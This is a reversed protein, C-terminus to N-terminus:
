FTGKEMERIIGKEMAKRIAHFTPSMRNFANTTGRYKKSEWIKKNTSDYVTVSVRAEGMARRTRFEFILDSDEINRVKRLGPVREIEKEWLEDSPEVKSDESMRIYVAKRSDDNVSISDFVEKDGNEFLIEKVENKSTSYLPGDINSYKKYKIVDPTIELVKVELTEGETTVMMDQANAGVFWVLLSILVIGRKIM